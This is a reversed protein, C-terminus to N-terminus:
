RLTFNIPLQYQVRVPRGRQKGPTFKPLQSIVRKAEAGCGGGIDRLVKVDGVQGNKEVVFSVYVKGTIGMDKATPPYRLNKGLFKYLKEQFCKDPDKADECGAFRPMDEVIQFVQDDQVEEGVSGFDGTNESIETELDIEVDIEVEQEVEVDNEVIEIQEVVSPPPPKPPSTPPPPIYNIIQEEVLFDEEPVFAEITKQVYVRWEAAMLTFSVAIVLGITGALLSYRRVDVEPKKRQEM